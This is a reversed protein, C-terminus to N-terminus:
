KRRRNRTTPRQALGADKIEAITIPEGNLTYNGAWTLREGRKGAWRQRWAHATLRGLPTDIGRTTVELDGGIISGYEAMWATRALTQVESLYDRPNLSSVRAPKDDRLRKIAEIIRLAQDTPLEAGIAQDVTRLADTLADIRALRAAHTM